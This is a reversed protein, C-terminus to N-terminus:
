RRVDHHVASRSKNDNFKKVTDKLSQIAIKQQSIAHDLSKRQCDNRQFLDAYEPFCAVADSCSLHARQHTSETVPIKGKTVETQQDTSTNM